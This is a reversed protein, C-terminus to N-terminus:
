KASMNMQACLFMDKCFEASNKHQEYCKMMTEGHKKCSNNCGSTLLDLEKQTPEQGFIKAPCEVMRQCPETCDVRKCGAVLLALAAALLGAKWM